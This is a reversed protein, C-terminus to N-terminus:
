QPSGLRVLRYGWGHINQIEVPIQHARLQTRLRSVHVKTTTPGADDRLCMDFAFYGVKNSQGRLLIFLFRALMQTISDVRLGQWYVRWPESRVMLGDM